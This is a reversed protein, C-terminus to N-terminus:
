DSRVCYNEAASPVTGYGTKRCESLLNRQYHARMGRSIPISSSAPRTASNAILRVSRASMGYIVGFNVTKATRRM